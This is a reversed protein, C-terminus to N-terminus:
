RARGRASPGSLPGRNLRRQAKGFGQIRQITKGSQQQGRISQDHAKKMYSKLTKKTLGTEDSENLGLAKALAKAWHDVSASIIKDSINGYSINSKDKINAKPYMVDLMMKRLKNDINDSMVMIFRTKGGKSKVTLKGKTYKKVAQKLQKAFAATNDEDLEVSEKVVKIKGFRKMQNSVIDAGLPVEIVGLKGRLKKKQSYTNKIYQRAIKETPFAKIFMGSGVGAVAFETKGEDLEVSERLTEKKWTDLLKMFKDFPLEGSKPKWPMNRNNYRVKGNGILFSWDGRGRGQQYEVSNPSSIKLEKSLKATVYDGFSDTWKDKHKAVSDIFKIIQLAQKHMKTHLATHAKTFRAMERDSLVEDLEVSEKAYLPNGKADKRAVLKHKKAFDMAKQHSVHSGHYAFMKIRGKKPDSITAMLVKDQNSRLEGRHGLPRQIVVFRATKNLSSPVNILIKSKPHQIIETTKKDAPINTDGGFRENLESEDYETSATVPIGVMKNYKKIKKTNDKKRKRESRSFKDMKLRRLISSEDVEVHDQLKKWRDAVYADLNGHDKYSSKKVPQKVPQKM